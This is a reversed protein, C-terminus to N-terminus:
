PDRPGLGKGAAAHLVVNTPRNPVVDGLCLVRSAMDLSWHMLPPQTYPVHTGTGLSAHTWKLTRLAMTAHLWSNQLPQLTATFCRSPVFFRLRHGLVLREM